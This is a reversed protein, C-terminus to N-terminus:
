CFFLNEAQFSDFCIAEQEQYKHDGSGGTGIGGAGEPKNAGKDEQDKHHM